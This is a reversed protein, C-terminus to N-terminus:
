GRANNYEFGNDQMKWLRHVTWEELGEVKGTEMMEKMKLAISEDINGHKRQWISLLSPTKMSALCRFRLEGGDQITVYKCHHDRDCVFILYYKWKGRWLNEKHHLYFPRKWWARKLWGQMRPPVQFLDEVEIFDQTLIGHERDYYEVAVDIDDARPRELLRGLKRGELLVWDSKSMKKYKSLRLKKM